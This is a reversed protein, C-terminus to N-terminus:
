SQGSWGLFRLFYNAPCSAPPHGMVAHGQGDNDRRIKERSVGPIDAIFDLLAPVALSM